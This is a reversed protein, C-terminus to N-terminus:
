YKAWFMLAVKICVSVNGEGVRDRFSMLVYNDCASCVNLLLLYTPCSEKKKKQVYSRATRGM